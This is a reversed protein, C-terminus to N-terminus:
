LLNRQPLKITRRGALPHPSDVAGWAEDYFSMLCFLRGSATPRRVFSYSFVREQVKTWRKPEFRENYASLIVGPPRLDEIGFPFLGLAHFGNIGPNRHYRSVFLGHAVKSLVRNVRAHEPAITLRGAPGVTLADDIRRALRESRTLARDVAGGASILCSLKPTVGVQALLVRFYEEDSSFGQNCARCSPVTTLPSPFPRELLLRPPAHDRTDAPRGCYICSTPM